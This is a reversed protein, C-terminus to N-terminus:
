KFLFLFRFTQWDLLLSILASCCSVKERAEGEVSVYVHGGL